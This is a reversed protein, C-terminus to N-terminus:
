TSLGNPPRVVLFVPNEIPGFRISRGARKPIPGPDFRAGFTRVPVNPLSLELLLYLLVIATGLMM